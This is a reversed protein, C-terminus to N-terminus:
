PAVAIAYRASLYQEVAKRENVSLARDYLLQRLSMAACPLGGGVNSGLASGSRTPNSVGASTHVLVGDTVLDHDNVAREVYSLVHPSSTLPVGSPVNVNSYCGWGSSALNDCFLVALHDLAFWSANGFTSTNQTVVTFITAVVDSIPTAYQLSDDVGDFSVGPLNNQAHANFAPQQSGTGQSATNTSYGQSQWASVAPAATVGFCPDMDIKLGSLFKPEFARALGLM